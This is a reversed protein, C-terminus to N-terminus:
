LEELIKTCREVAGITGAGLDRLAQAIGEPELSDHSSMFRYEVADLRKGFSVEGFIELLEIHGCEDEVAVVVLDYRDAGRRKERGFNNLSRRQFDVRLVARCTSWM